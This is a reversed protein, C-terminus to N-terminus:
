DNRHLDVLWLVIHVGWIEGFNMKDALSCKAPERGAQERETGM